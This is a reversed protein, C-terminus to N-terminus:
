PRAGVLQLRYGAAPAEASLGRIPAGEEPALSIVLTLTEFGQMRAANRDDLFPSLIVTRGGDPAASVAGGRRLAAKIRNRIYDPNGGALAAMHRTANELFYVLVPDVSAPFSGVVRERGAVSERLELTARGAPDTVRVVSLQGTAPTFGPVTRGARELSWAIGEGAASWDRDAFVLRDTQSAGEPAAPMAPGALALPTLLAAAALQRFM